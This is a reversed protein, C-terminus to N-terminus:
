NKVVRVVEEGVRIVYIGKTFGSFDLPVSIATGTATVETAYLLKGSADMVRVQQKGSPATFQVTLINKVPNPFARIGAAKDSHRIAVVRSFAFSSDQNVLRLRYFNVGALPQRDTFGYFSNGAARVHGITTFSQGDASRQVEYASMAQEGAVKWSLQVAAPEKTATFTVVSVPLIGSSNILRAIGLSTGTRGGIIIQNDQSDISYGVDVGGFDIRTYGVGNAFSNDITGNAQYRAVVFDEDGGVTTYGGVLLKNDAQVSVQNIEENGGLNTSVIGTGNFTADLAGTATYRVLALDNNTGNFSYGAAVISGNQLTVSYAGADTGIATTVKGDTDFTADLSGDPNFRALGFNGVGNKLAYGALVIKGDPQIVTSYAIDVGEGGVSATVKGDTDFTTDLSGDTNYRALSFVYNTGVLSTGAVIIKGDAQLNISYAINDTGIATTLKGDTDFSNDLTGNANYRALAFLGSTTNSYGAVLIKGDSQVILSTAGDDGGFDTTVLGSTGFSNDLSGDANYRVLAFDNGTVGGTNISFAQLIKDDALVKIRQRNPVVTGAAFSTSVRGGTGFSPDPM